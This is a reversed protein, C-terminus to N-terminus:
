TALPVDRTTILGAQHLPVDRAAIEHQQCFHQWHEQLLVHQFVSNKRSLTSDCQEQGVLKSRCHHAQIRRATRFRSAEEPPINAPQPVTSLAFAWSSHATGGCDRWRRACSTSIAVSCEPLLLVCLLCCATWCARDSLPCDRRQVGYRPSIRLNYQIRGEVVM